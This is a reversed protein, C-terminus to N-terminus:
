ISWLKAEGSLYRMLMSMLKMVDIRDTKARRYRRNVEISSSDVVFNNIGSAQLHRHLWFGDRGAEYCSYIAADEGLAFRSKSRSIEQQLEDLQRAAITKQRRKIGDSFLVKWKSNSLEFAMYLREGTTNHEKRIMQANTM